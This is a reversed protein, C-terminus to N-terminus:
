EVRGGVLGALEILPRAAASVRRGCTIVADLAPETKCETGMLIQKLTVPQGYWTNMNASQAPRRRPAGHQCTSCGRNDTTLTMPQEYWTNMNASQELRRRPGGHQCTSCGRNGTTLTMPQEYWTNMNASQEQRGRPGGHQCASCGRNGTTLTMPKGM